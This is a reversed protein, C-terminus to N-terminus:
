EDIYKRKRFMKKVDTLSSVSFSDEIDGIQGDFDNDRQRSNESAEMQDSKKTLNKVTAGFDNPTLDPIEDDIVSLTKILSINHDTVGLLLYEGTVRVLTLNRKPGLFKQSVITISDKNFQAGLRKANVKKGIVVFSLLVLGAAGLGMLMRWVSPAAASKSDKNKMQLPIESEAKNDDLSIPTDDGEDMASSDASGAAPGGAASASATAGVKLVSAKNMHEAMKASGSSAIEYARSLEKINATALAVSPDMALSLRKGDQIFSIRDNYNSAIKGNDLNVRVRISTPDNYSVYVNNIDNAGVDTFLKDKKISVNKMDWELTRRLFRTEISGLSAAENMDFHLYTIGAKDEVSVKTLQAGNESAASAAAFVNSVMMLVTLFVKIM